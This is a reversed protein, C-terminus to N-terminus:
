ECKEKPGIVRKGSSVFEKGDWSIFDSYCADSEIWRTSVYNSKVGYQLQLLYYSEGGYPFGFVQGTAVDGVFAFRCSTGCGIEVIAYHGAFNPGTRMENSIKTRYTLYARDRGTFDPLHIPGQYVRDMPLNNRTESFVVTSIMSLLAVSVSLLKKM